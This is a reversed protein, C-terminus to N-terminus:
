WLLCIQTYEKEDEIDDMYYLVCTWASNFLKLSFTLLIELFLQKNSVAFTISPTSNKNPIVWKLKTEFVTMQIEFM